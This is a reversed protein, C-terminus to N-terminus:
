IGTFRLLCGALVLGSYGPLDVLHKYGVARCDVRPYGTLSPWKLEVGAGWGVGWGWRGVGLEGGGVGLLM